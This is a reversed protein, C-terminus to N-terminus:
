KGVEVIEVAGGYYNGDALMVESATEAELKTEYIEALEIQACRYITEYDNGWLSHWFLGSEVDKIVYM